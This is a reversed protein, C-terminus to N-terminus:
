NLVSQAGNIQTMQWKDRLLKMVPLEPLHLEVEALMCVVKPLLDEAHRRQVGCKELLDPIMWYRVQWLSSVEGFEKLQGLEWSSCLAGSTHRWILNNTIAEFVAPIYAESPDCFRWDFNAKLVLSGLIVSTDFAVPSYMDVSKPIVKPLARHVM